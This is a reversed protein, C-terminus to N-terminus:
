DDTGRAKAGLGEKEILKELQFVKLESGWKGYAAIAEGFQVASDELRGGLLYMRGLKECAFGQNNRFGEKDATYISRLFLLEAMDYDSSAVAFDAEVMYVKNTWTEPCRQMARKLIGLHRRARWSCGLTKRSMSAEVSGQYYVYLWYVWNVLGNADFKRFENIHHLFSKTDNMYFALFLDMCVRGVRAMFQDTKNSTRRRDKSNKRWPAVAENARGMLKYCTKVMPIMVSEAPVSQNYDRALTQLKEMSEVTAVLSDGSWFHAMGVCFLAGM